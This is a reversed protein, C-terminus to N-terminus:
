ASYAAQIEIRYWTRVIIPGQERSELRHSNPQHDHGGLQAQAQERPAEKDQRGLMFAACEVVQVIRQEMSGAAASHSVLPLSGSVCSRNHWQVIMARVVGDGPYRAPRTEVEDAPCM